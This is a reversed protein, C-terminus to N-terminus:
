RGMGGRASSRGIEIISVGEDGTEKLISRTFNEAVEYVAKGDPSEAELPVQAFRNKIDSEITFVKGYVDELHHILMDPLGKGDSGVLEIDIKRLPRLGDEDAVYGEKAELTPRVLSRITMAGFARGPFNMGCWTHDLVINDSRM